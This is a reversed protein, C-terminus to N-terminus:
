KVIAAALRNRFRIGHRSASPSTRVLGGSAPGPALAAPLEAARVHTASGILEIEEVVMRSAILPHVHKQVDGTVLWTAGASPWRWRTPLSGRRTPSRLLTPAVASM